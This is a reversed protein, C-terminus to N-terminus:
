IAFFFFEYELSEDMKTKMLSDFYIQKYQSFDNDDM